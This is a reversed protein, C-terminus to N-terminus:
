SAVGEAEYMLGVGLGNKFGNKWSTHWCCYIYRLQQWRYTKVCPFCSHVDGCFEPGGCALCLFCVVSGCCVGKCISGFISGLLSEMQLRFHTRHVGKKLGQGLRLTRVGWHTATHVGSGWIFLSCTCALTAVPNGWGRGRYGV